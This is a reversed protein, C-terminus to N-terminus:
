LLSFSATFLSVEVPRIGIAQLAAEKDKANEPRDLLAKVNVAVRYPYKTSM